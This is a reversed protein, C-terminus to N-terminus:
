GGIWSDVNGKGRGKNGGCGKRGKGERDIM